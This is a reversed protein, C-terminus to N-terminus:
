FNLEEAHSVCVSAVIMQGAPSTNGNDNLVNDGFNCAKAGSLFWM